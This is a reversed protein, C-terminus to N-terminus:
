FLFKFSFYPILSLSSKFELVFSYIFSFLSFSLFSGCYDTKLLVDSLYILFLGLYILYIFDFLTGTENFLGYEGVEYDYDYLL